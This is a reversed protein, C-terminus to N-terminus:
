LYEKMEVISLDLEKEKTEIIFEGRDDKKTTKTHVYEKEPIDLECILLKQTQRSEITLKNDDGIHVRIREGKHGKLDFIRSLISEGEYEMAGVTIKSNQKLKAQM